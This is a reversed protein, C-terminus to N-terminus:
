SDRLFHQIWWNVEATEQEICEDLSFTGNPRVRKLLDATEHCSDIAHQKYASLMREANKREGNVIEHAVWNICIEEFEWEAEKEINLCKNFYDSEDTYSAQFFCGKGNELDMPLYCPADDPIGCRMCYLSTLHPFIKFANPDKIKMSSLFITELKPYKAAIQPLDEEKFATYQSMISTVRPIAPMGDLSEIHHFYLTEVNPFYSLYKQYSPDTPSISFGDESTEYPNKGLM